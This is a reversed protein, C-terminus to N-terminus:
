VFTLKHSPPWVHHLPLLHIPYIKKKLVQLIKLHEPTIKECVGLFTIIIQCNLCLKDMKYTSKIRLSCLVSYSELKM